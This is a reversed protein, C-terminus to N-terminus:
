SATGAGMTSEALRSLIRDHLVNRAGEVDLERGSDSGVIPVHAHPEHDGPRDVARGLEAEASCERADRRVDLELEVQARARVQARAAESADDRRALAARRPQDDEGARAREDRADDVYAPDRVIERQPQAGLPASYRPRLHLPLLTVVRSGLEDARRPAAIAM